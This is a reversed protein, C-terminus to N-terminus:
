DEKKQKLLSLEGHLQMLSFKMTEIEKHQEQILQLMPPIMFRMNWDVIEGYMGKEVAIPYHKYIDEAVFGIVDQNYRQDDSELYNLNYKYQYIGVNYLNHPDLDANYVPVIDHKFRESSGSAIGLQNTGNQIRCNPAATSAGPNNIRVSGNLALVGNSYGAILTTGNIPYISNTYMTIGRVADRGIDTYGCALGMNSIELPGISGSYANITGNITASNATMSGYRDLSFNNSSVIFRNGSITIDDTSVSISNCLDYGRSVKMSIDSANQSIRSSLNSNVDSIQSTLGSATLQIEAELGNKTDNVEALISDKTKTIDVHVGDIENDLKANTNQIDNDLTSQKTITKSVTDSLTDTPEGLEIGSYMDTICNYVTSICRSTSNVGLKEFKVTVTDGLQVDQLSEIIEPNKIFSVTLSVKPEALKNKEIYKQAEAKLKEQTPMSDFNSSLDLSMTKDRVPNNIIRIPGDDLYQLGDDEVFYYPYVLSYMDAISEEQTLDTLNVGYEISVGRDTGRKDHLIVDYMDFEFEGGFISLIADSDTGLVARVSRPKSLCLKSKTTVTTSFTYRCPSLTCRRIYEFVEDVTYAYNELAGKVVIDSLDYSIHQANVTIVKNIPRSISYIRFPQTTHTNAKTYIIRGNQIEDYLVGNVPYTMELEYEGNLKETVTCTMADILVGLGNNDFNTVNGEYLRIM